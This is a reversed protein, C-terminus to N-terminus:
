LTQDNSIYPSDLNGGSVVVQRLSWMLFSFRSQARNQGAKEDSVVSQFDAVKM